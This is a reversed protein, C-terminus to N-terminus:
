KTLGISMVVRPGKETCRVGSLWLSRSTNELVVSPRAVSHVRPCRLAAGYQAHSSSPPDACPHCLTRAALPPDARRHHRFAWAIVVSPRCLSSPLGARRRCCFSRAVIVSPGRSSSPFDVCRRRFARVVIVSPGCLSLLLGVRRRRFAWVVIISPGHSLSPLGTHRRSDVCPHCLSRAVVVRDACPHLGQAVVIPPGCSSSPHDVCRCCLRRSTHRLAQAVQLVITYRTASTSYSLVQNYKTIKKKEETCM